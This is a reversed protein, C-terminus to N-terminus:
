STAGPLPTSKVVHLFAEQSCPLTLTPARGSGTMTGVGSQYLHLRLSGQADTGEPDLRLAIEGRTGPAIPATIPQMLHQHRLTGDADIWEALICTAHYGAVAWWQPSRNHVAIRTLGTAGEVSAVSLAGSMRTPDGHYYRKPLGTAKGAKQALYFITEGRLALDDERDVLLEATRPDVKRDYVDVTKLSVPHLGAAQGLEPLEIPSYERNHRGYVGGSPVFIGFSYPAIGNLMKNVGRHSVVNPTTLLIHGGPKLVRAAESFFFYPDLALHELIEMGTVLDFSNNPYPWPDRESNAAQLAIEFSPHDGSHARVTQYYPDPGEWLGSMQVGPFRNALLAQFVLPPFVGVDLASAVELGDLTQLTTMYRTWHTGLYSALGADIPPADNGLLGPLEDFAYAALVEEINAFPLSEPAAPPAIATKLAEVAQEQPSLEPAAETTDEPTNTAEQRASGPLPTPHVAQDSRGALTEVVHEWTIQMDTYRTLGAQGMREALAADAMLEEFAQGLDAPKPATIRGEQGDTIFELPGGADTVTIVPRGALMAELTIYGYDEDQPVFVVARAEAYHRLLTEDDVRGLWTVRNAVGLELALAHLDQQYGPNEAVGAIVLRIKSRTTAMGRLILELRKSPNIRGPAFLYDGYEGQWLREANPPPHYLPTAEMDLYQNLRKAVNGSNAYLPHPSATFAARDEAHILARLADGDPDHMLDADGASWLDYAARHQHIIWFLKNPHNALWAPFKLGIALDVPVGEFESIDHMRAALIHDALVEGPYWKFPLTIETAEHGYANLASVLNAAHREAGGQVFPVQTRLVGIRM